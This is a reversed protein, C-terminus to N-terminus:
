HFFSSRVSVGLISTYVGRVYALDIDYRMVSCVYILIDEAPLTFYLIRFPLHYQKLNYNLISFILPDTSSLQPGCRASHGLGDLFPWLSRSCDFFINMM